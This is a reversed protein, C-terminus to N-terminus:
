EDIEGIRKLIKKVNEPHGAYWVIDEHGKINFMQDVKQWCSFAKLLKSYRGTRGCIRIFPCGFCIIEYIAEWMGRINSFKGQELAFYVFVNNHLEFCYFCKGDKSAYCLDEDQAYFGKVQFFDEYSAVEYFKGLAGNIEDATIKKIYKM